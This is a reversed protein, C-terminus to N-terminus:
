FLKYELFEFAEKKLDCYLIIGHLAAMHLATRKITDTANVDAGHKILEEVIRENNDVHIM